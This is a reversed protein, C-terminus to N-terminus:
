GPRLGAAYFPDSAEERDEPTPVVLWWEAEGAEFAALQVEEIMEADIHPNALELEQALEYPPKAGRPRAADMAALRNGLWQCDEESLRARPDGCKGGCNECPSIRSSPVCPVPDMDSFNREDARGRKREPQAQEGGREGKEMGREPQAQGGEREGQAQRLATKGKASVSSTFSSAEVPRDQASDFPEAHVSEPIREGLEEGRGLAAIVDDLASLASTVEAREALRDLRALHALLLRDSYRRRTAVEEGHYFVAEEVGNLARDALVEEAHARASLLAADWLATFAPSARRARYATQASVGAARCALRVNGNLSLNELFTSQSRPSFIPK